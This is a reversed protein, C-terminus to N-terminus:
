LPPARAPSLLGAPTATRTATQTQQQKIKLWLVGQKNDQQANTSSSAQGSAILILTNPRAAQLLTQVHVSLQQMALAHPSTPPLTPAAAVSSASTLAPSAPASTAAAAASSTAAAASAPTSVPLPALLPVNRLAQLQAVVLHTNPNKLEKAAARVTSEDDVQVCAHYLPEDHLLDRIHVPAGVLSCKRGAGGASGPAAARHLVAGMSERERQPEGFQRGHALKLKALDLAALADERPDHGASGVQIERSLHKAALSRLSNKYPAGRAHTYLLATDVCARHVMKLARLDNELSHGVLIDGAKVFGAIRARAEEVTTSVGRLMDATIGSFRTNYDLIPDGPVVLEDLLLRGESDLLTVRSLELGLRTYCMECDVAFIRPGAPTSSSSSAAAAVPVPASTSVAAAAAAAPTAAAASSADPIAAASALPVHTCPFTDWNLSEAPEPSSSASAAATSEAAAVAASAQAAAAASAAAAATPAPPPPPPPALLSCNRHNCTRRFDKVDAKTPVPYLNAVLEEEGMMCERVHRATEAAELAAASSSSETATTAEAAAAAAGSESADGSQTLKQRKNRRAATKEAEKDRVIPCALYDALVSTRNFASHATYLRVPQM